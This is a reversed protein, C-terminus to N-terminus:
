ALIRRFAHASKRVEGQNQEIKETKENGGIKGM